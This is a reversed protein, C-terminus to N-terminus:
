GAQAGVEALTDAVQAVEALTLRGDGDLDLGMLAAAMAAEAGMTAESAATEAYARLEAATATGDSDGDATAQTLMLRTRGTLGLVAGRASAEALTVAGDNDLDAEVMPQLARARFFARDLAAARDIDAQMLAGDRGHGHVMGLALDRWRDPRAAIREALDPPLAALAATVSRAQAAAPGALILGGLWVAIWAVVQLGNRVM